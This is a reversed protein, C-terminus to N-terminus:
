TGDNPTEQPMEPPGADLPRKYWADDTPKSAGSRHRALRKVARGGLVVLVVMLAFAIGLGVLGLLALMVKARPPSLATVSDGFLLGPPIAFRLDCIAFRLNPM